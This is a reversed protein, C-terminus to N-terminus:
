GREFAIHCEIHTIGKWIAGDNGGGAEFLISTGGGEIITFHLSYKGVSILTDVTQGNTIVPILGFLIFALYKM